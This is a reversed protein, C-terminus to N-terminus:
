QEILTIDGSQTYGSKLDEYDFTVKHSVSKYISNADYLQLYLADRRLYTYTLSYYGSTDTVDYTSKNLKVSDFLCVRINELTEDNSNTVYGSIRYTVTDSSSISEYPDYNCGSSFILPLISIGIVVLSIPVFRPIAKFLLFMLEEKGIM